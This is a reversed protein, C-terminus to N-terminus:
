ACEHRTYARKALLAFVPTEIVPAALMVFPTWIALSGLTLFQFGSTLEYYMSNQLGTGGGPLLLRIWDSVPYDLYHDAFMPLALAAASMVLVMVTNSQISSLLMTLSISALMTLLGSLVFLALAQNMNLNILVYSGVKLQASSKDPGFALLLIGSFVAACILYLATCFAYVALMRTRALKRRGYKSCRLISDEGTAYGQSFIPAAIVTCILCLAFLCITWDQWFDSSGFGYEWYFPKDVSSDLETAARTAAENQTFLGSEINGRRQEYYESGQHGIRSLIAQCAMYQDFAERPMADFSRYTEWIENSVRNVEDIREETVYGEVDDYIGKLYEIADLGKISPDYARSEVSMGDDFVTSAAFFASTALAIVALVAVSRTKILRKIELRFM